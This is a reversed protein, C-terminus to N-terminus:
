ERAPFDPFDQVQDTASGSESEDGPTEAFLAELRDRAKAYEGKKFSIQALNYQAERFKPNATFARRLVVEAEDLRGQDM